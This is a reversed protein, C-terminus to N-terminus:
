ADRACICSPRRRERRSLRRSRLARAEKWSARSPHALGRRDTQAPVSEAWAQTPFGAGARRGPRARSPRRQGRRALAAGHTSAWLLRSRSASGRPRVARIRAANNCQQMTRHQINCAPSMSNSRTDIAYLSPPSGTSCPSRTAMREHSFIPTTPRVPAPANCCM